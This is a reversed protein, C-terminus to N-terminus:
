SGHSANLMADVALELELKLVGAAPLWARLRVVLTGPM